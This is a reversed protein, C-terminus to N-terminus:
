GKSLSRTSRPRQSGFVPSLLAAFLSQRASREIMQEPMPLPATEPLFRTIEENGDTQNTM